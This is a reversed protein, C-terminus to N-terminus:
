RWALDVSIKGTYGCETCKAKGGKIIVMKPLGCNKCKESIPKGIYDDLFKEPYKKADQEVSKKFEQELQKAFVKPFLSQKAM